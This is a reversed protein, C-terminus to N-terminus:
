RYVPHPLLLLFIRTHHYVVRKYVLNMKILFFYVVFYSFLCLVTFKSLITAMKKIITDVHRRFSKCTKLIFKESMKNWEEKILTKFM